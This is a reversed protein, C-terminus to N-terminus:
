RIPARTAPACHRRPQQPTEDMRFVSPSAPADGSGAGGTSRAASLGECDIPAPTNLGSNDPAGRERSGGASPEKRASRASRLAVPSPSASAICATQLLKRCTLPRRQACASARHARGRQPPSLRPGNARQSAVNAPGPAAGHGGRDGVSWRGSGEPTELDARSGCRNSKRLGVSCLRPFEGDHITLSGAQPLVEV